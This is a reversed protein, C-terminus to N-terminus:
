KEDLGMRIFYMQYAQYEGMRCPVPIGAEMLAEAAYVKGSEQEQYSCGPLLGKLRIYNQTMNGHIEQMVVNVLVESADGSVFEWAGTEQAFPDTLRYYLGDLIM